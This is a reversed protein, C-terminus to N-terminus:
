REISWRGSIMNNRIYTDPKANVAEPRSINYEPM